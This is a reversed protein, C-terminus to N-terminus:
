SKSALWTKVDEPHLKGMKRFVVQGSENLVITFPLGGEQDGLLRSLETGRLGALLIPYSVPRQTLFRKVLSPQDIALGLVKWDKAANQQFFADLLPMEEVCPVCWTAWFNIVLKQGKFDSLSVWESNPTELKAQWLATSAELSLALDEQSKDQWWSIGLGVLAFGLGTATLLSRKAFLPNSSM